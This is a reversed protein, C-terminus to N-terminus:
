RHAILPEFPNVVEAGLRAVNSINRTALTMRHAKATEALLADISPVPDPLECISM